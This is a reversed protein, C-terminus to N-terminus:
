LVNERLLIVLFGVEILLFRNHRRNTPYIKPFQPANSPFRGHRNARRRLSLLRLALFQLPPIVNTLHCFITDRKDKRM